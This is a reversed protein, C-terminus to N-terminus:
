SKLFKEEGFKYIQFFIVVKAATIPGRRPTIDIPHSIVSM